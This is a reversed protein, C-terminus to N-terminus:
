ILGINGPSLHDWAQYSAQVLMHLALGPVEVTVAHSIWVQLIGQASHFNM